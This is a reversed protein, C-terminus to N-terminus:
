ASGVTSPAAAWTSCHNGRTGGFSQGRGQGFGHDRADLRGDFSTALSCNESRHALALVSAWCAAM